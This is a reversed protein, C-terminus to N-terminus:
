GGREKRQRDANLLELSKSPDGKLKSTTWFNTLADTLLGIDDAAVDYRGTVKGSRMVRTSLLHDLAEGDSAGCALM